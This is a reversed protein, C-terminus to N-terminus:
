PYSCCRCDDADIALVEANGAFLAPLLRPSPLFGIFERAIRSRSGSRQSLNTMNGSSRPDSHERRNRNFRAPTLRTHWCQDRLARTMEALRQDACQALVPVLTTPRPIRSPDM